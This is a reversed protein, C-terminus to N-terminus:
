AITLEIFTLLLVFNYPNNTEINSDVPTCRRGNSTREWVHQKGSGNLLKMTIKEDSEWTWSFTTLYVKVHHFTIGTM